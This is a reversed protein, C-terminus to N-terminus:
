FFTNAMNVNNKKENQHHSMYMHNSTDANIELGDEKSTGLLAAIRKKTSNIYESLINGGDVYFLFQHAGCLKM